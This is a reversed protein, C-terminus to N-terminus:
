TRIRTVLSSSSVRHCQFQQIDLSTRGTAPSAASQGTNGGRRDVPACRARHRGSASRTSERRHHRRCRLASGSNPAARREAWWCRGRGAAVLGVVTGVTVRMGRICPKGGMVTPDRTIRTLQPMNSSTDPWVEMTVLVSARALDGFARLRSLSRSAHSRSSASDPQAAERSRSSTPSSISRRATGGAGVGGRTSL